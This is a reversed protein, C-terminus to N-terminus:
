SESGIAFVPLVGRSTSASNAVACSHPSHACFKTPSAVDRLWIGLTDITLAMGLRFIALQRKNMTNYALDSGGPSMIRCGYLMAESMLEAKSDKWLAGSPKGDTVANVLYERHTLLKNGFDTLLTNVAGNLGSSYMDSGVYGGDTIDSSNMQASSMRAHPIMVLHHKLFATDGTHYWYDMDAIDYRNNNIVWYDGIYLDDFSGSSIAALQDATVATGLSKGRFTNRHNAASVLGAFEVAADQAKIIKTGNTGDKLLVDNTDFRAASAYQTIKALPM